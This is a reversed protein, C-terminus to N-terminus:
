SKRYLKEEGPPRKRFRKYEWQYYEPAATVLEEITRNMADVSEQELESYIGEEPECFGMVFGNKEPKAYAFIIRAGTKQHLRHVLTMSYAPIGFFPSFIGGQTAPEQDPLIMTMGGERLAKLVAMVGKGSAPVLNATGVNRLKRLLENLQAMRPERYLITTPRRASVIMGAMEWNGLHPILIILGSGAELAQDFLEPSEWRVVKSPRWENGRYWVAPTELAMRGTEELSRRALRRQQAPRLSPFCLRINTLSVRASNGKRWWVLRGFFRGAIRSFSFPLHALLRLVLALPSFTM